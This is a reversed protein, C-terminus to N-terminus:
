AVYATDRMLRRTISSLLCLAFAADTVYLQRVKREPLVFLSADTVCAASSARTRSPSFLGIEGFLDGPKLESGSEVLRVRGRQMLYIEAAPDGHRFLVQGAPCRLYDLHPMLFALDLPQTETLEVQRDAVLGSRLAVLTAESRNRVQLKRFIATLQIRVTGPHSGRAAAVEDNTKGRAVLALIETEAPTLRPGTSWVSNEASQRSRPSRRSYGAHPLAPPPATLSRGVNTGSSSPGDVNVTLSM